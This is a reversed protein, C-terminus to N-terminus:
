DEIVDDEDQEQTPAISKNMQGKKDKKEQRNLNQLVTHWNVECRPANFIIHIKMEETYNLNPLLKPSLLFYQSSNKRSVQAILDFVCRENREDM